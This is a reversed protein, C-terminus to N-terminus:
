TKIILMSFAYIFCHKHISFHGPAIAPFKGIYFLIEVTDYPMWRIFSASEHTLFLRWLVHRRKYKYSKIFLRVAGDRINVM